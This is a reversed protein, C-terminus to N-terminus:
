LRKRSTKKPLREQILGCATCSYSYRGTQVMEGNCEECRKETATWLPHGEIKNKRRSSKTM